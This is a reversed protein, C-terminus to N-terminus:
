FIVEFFNKGGDSIVEEYENVVVDNTSKTIKIPSGALIPSVYSMPVIEMSLASYKRGARNEEIGHIQNITKM